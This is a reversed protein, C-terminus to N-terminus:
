KSHIFKKIDENSGALVLIDDPGIIHQNGVSIVEDELKLGVCRIHYTEFFDVEKISKGFLKKPAKVQSLTFNETIQILPRYPLSLKDALRHGVEKEPLIVQDAGIIKLIDKHIESVSRAIVNKVKLRKTLIATILISQAFNEGM